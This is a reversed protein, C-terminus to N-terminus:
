GRITSSALMMLRIFPNLTNTVKSTMSQLIAGNELDKSEKVQTEETDCGFIMLALTSISILLARRM